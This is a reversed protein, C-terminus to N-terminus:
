IRTVTSMPGHRDREFIRVRVLVAIVVSVVFNFIFTQNASAASPNAANRAVVPPRAKAALHSREKRTCFTWATFTSRVANESGFAFGASWWITAAIIESLTLM